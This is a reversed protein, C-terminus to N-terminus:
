RSPPPRWTHLARRPSRVARGLGPRIYTMKDGLKKLVLFVLGAGALVGVALAGPRVQSRGLTVSPQGMFSLGTLLFVLTGAWALGMVAVWIRAILLFNNGKTATPAGPAPQPQAAKEDMKTEPM